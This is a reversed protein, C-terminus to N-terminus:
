IYFNLEYRATFVAERTFVLLNINYQAFTATQESICLFVYICDTFYIYLKQINFRTTSYMFM